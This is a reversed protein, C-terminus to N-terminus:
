NYTLNDYDIGHASLINEFQRKYNEIDYDNGDLSYGQEILKKVHGLGELAKYKAATEVISSGNNKNFNKQLEEKIVVLWQSEVDHRKTLLKKRSARNADPMYENIVNIQEEYNGSENFVPMEMVRNYYDLNSGDGCSRFLAPVVRIAIVIIIIWLCGKLWRHKKPPPTTGTGTTRTGPGTTRTGTGTTRTGTGTTRTGTGTTRTTTGTTRTTTGTTRTTTGTTRTGTSSPRQGSQLFYALLQRLQANSQCQQKYFSFHDSDKTLVTIKGAFTGIAECLEKHSTSFVQHSRQKWESAKRKVNETDLQRNQVTLLFKLPEYDTSQLYGFDRKIVNLSRILAQIHTAAVSPDIGQQRPASQQPRQQTQQPRPQQPAADDSLFQRLASKLQANSQCQQKYFAFHDADKTMITIKGAFAGIAECLEKHATSYKQHSSQKWESAKNKTLESNLTRNQVSLLFIFTEMDERQLSEFEKSITNLAKIIAQIHTAGVSPDIAM